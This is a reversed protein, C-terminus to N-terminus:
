ILAARYPIIWGRKALSNVRPLFPLNQFTNWFLALTLLLTDFAMRPCHAQMISGRVWMEDDASLFFVSIFTPYHVKMWQVFLPPPPQMTSATIHVSRLPCLLTSSSEREFKKECLWSRCQPFPINKRQLEPLNTSGQFLLPSPQSREAFFKGFETLSFIRGKELSM